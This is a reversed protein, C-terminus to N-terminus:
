DEYGPSALSGPAPHLRRLNNDPCQDRLHAITTGDPLKLDPNLDLLPQLVFDRNPLERHPVTLRESEIVSDGYILIDLDLTRPGWRRIRERHHGQEITQLADLLELASLETVLQVAGNIFDPQDQPGVPSSAYFPSQAVLHTKPLNALAGVARALQSLPDALNSGLGIYVDTGTM